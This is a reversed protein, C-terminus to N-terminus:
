RYGVPILQKALMTSSDRGLATVPVARLRRALEPVAIILSHDEAGVVCLTDGAEGVCGVGERPYGM